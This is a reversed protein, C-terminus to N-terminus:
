APMKKQERYQYHQEYEVEYLVDVSASDRVLLRGSPRAGKGHAESAILSITLIGHRDPTICVAIRGLRKGAKSATALDLEAM